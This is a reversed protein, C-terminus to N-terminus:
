EVRLNTEVQKDTLNVVFSDPQTKDALSPQSAKVSFNVTEAALAFNPVTFVLSVLLLHNAKM